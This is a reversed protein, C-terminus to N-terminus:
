SNEKDWQQMQQPISSDFFLQGFSKRFRYCAKNSLQVYVPYHNIYILFMRM